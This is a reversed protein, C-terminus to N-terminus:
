VKDIGLAARYPVPARYSSVKLEGWSSEVKGDDTKNWVLQGAKEGKTEDIVSLTFVGYTDALATTDIKKSEGLYGELIVMKGDKSVYVPAEKGDYVWTEVHLKITLGCDRIYFDKGDAEITM